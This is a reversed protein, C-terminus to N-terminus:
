FMKILNADMRLRTVLVLATSVAVRYPVISSAWDTHTAAILFGAIPNGLLDGVGWGANATGIATPMNVFFAGNAVGNLAAFIALVALTSAVSWIALLTIANLATTLLLMSTSGLKDCVIGSGLCSLALCPNYCIM